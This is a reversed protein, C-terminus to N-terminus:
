TNGRRVASFAEAVPMGETILEIIAERFKRIDAPLESKHAQYYDSMLQLAESEKPKRMVTKADTDLLSYSTILKSKKSPVQHEGIKGLANAVWYGGWNNVVSKGLTSCLSEYVGFWEPTTEISYFVDDIVHETYPQPITALVERVLAKV